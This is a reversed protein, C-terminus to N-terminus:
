SLRTLYWQVIADQGFMAIVAGVALAPGFPIADKRTRLRLAILTLGGAAGITVALFLAVIAGPSGLFAGLMTALKMDGGGMGGRSLIGILLFIGGAGAATFVSSALMGTGSAGAFILGLAIGPYTIANPILGTELDTFFVVLLAVALVAFRAAMLTVGYQWVLGALLAGGAAEVVLYRLGIPRRCHRCRGRLLLYSVIPLNDWPSIPTGCHPCRSGPAVISEQRPLRYILVNAFSGLVTGLVLALGVLWGRGGVYDLGVRRVKLACCGRM